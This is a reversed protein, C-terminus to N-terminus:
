GKFSEASLEILKCSITDIDVAILSMDGVSAISPDSVTTWTPRLSLLKMGELDSGLVAPNIVRLLQKEESISLDM